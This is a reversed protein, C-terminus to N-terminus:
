RRSDTPATTTPPVNIEAAARCREARKQTRDQEDEDDRRHLDVAEGTAHLVHRLAHHDDGDEEGGAGPHAASCSSNRRVRCLRFPRISLIMLDSRGKVPDALM